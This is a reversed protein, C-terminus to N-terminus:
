IPLLNKQVVVANSALVETQSIQIAVAAQINHSRAPRRFVDFDVEVLRRFSGSATTHTSWQSPPIEMAQFDQVRSAALRHRDRTPLDDFPNEVRVMTAEVDGPHQTQGKLFAGASPQCPYVGANPRKRGAGLLAM